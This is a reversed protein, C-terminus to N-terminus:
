GGLTKTPPLISRRKPNFVERASEWDRALALGPDLGRKAAQTFDNWPYFLEVGETSALYTRVFLIGGASAQRVVM